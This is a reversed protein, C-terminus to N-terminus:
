SQRALRLLMEDVEPEATSGVAAKGARLESRWYQMSKEWARKSVRMDTPDPTPPRTTASSYEKTRRIHEVAATRKRLRREWVSDM